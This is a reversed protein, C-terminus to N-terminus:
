MTTMLVSQSVRLDEGYCGADDVGELHVVADPAVEDVQDLVRRAELVREHVQLEALGEAREAGAEGLDRHRQQEHPQHRPIPRLFQNKPRDDPDQQDNIRHKVDHRIRLTPGHLLEPKWHNLAM